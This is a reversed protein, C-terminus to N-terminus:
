AYAPDSNKIFESEYKVYTWGGSFPNLLMFYHWTLLALMRNGTELYYKGDGDDYYDGRKVGWLHSIDLFRKVWRKCHWNRTKVFYM